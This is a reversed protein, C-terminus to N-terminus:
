EKVQVMVKFTGGLDQEDLLNRLVTAQRDTELPDAAMESADIQLRRLEEEAGGGRLFASLTTFVVTEFGELRAHLDVAAFDVDATLDQEGPRALPDLIMQHKFYGRVSRRRSVRDELGWRRGAPGHCDQYVGGSRVGPFWDGYDISVLSGRPMVAALQGILDGLGPFVELIGDRTLARLQRPELTGFLLEMEAAAVGSVEGWTEELRTSAAEVYAERMCGGAVDILHAPTTDLYENGIIVLPVVGACAQDLDAGWGVDWGTAVSDEVASEQRRRLSAGVEVVRYGIEGRWDPRQEEWYGLIGAALQGEGGGLEVVAPRRTGPLGMASHSTTQQPTLPPAASAGAVLSAEVLETVLRAVTQNFFPSLSPATSFDGGHRLLRDVHSYYGQVPHTLALDMFRAFTVRGGEADLVDLFSSPLPPLPEDMSGM